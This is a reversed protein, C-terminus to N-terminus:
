RQAVPFDSLYSLKDKPVNAQEVLYSEWFSGIRQNEAPTMGFRSPLQIVIVNALRSLDVGAEVTGMKEIEALGREFSILTGWDGCSEVMDSLLVLSIEYNDAEAPFRKLYKEVGVLSSVICSTPVKIREDTHATEWAGELKRTLEQFYAEVAQGHKKEGGYEVNPAFYQEEPIAQAMGEGMVFVAVTAKQPISQLYTKLKDMWLDLSERDAPEFVTPDFVLVFVPQKARVDKEGGTEVCGPLILLSALGLGTIVARKFVKSIM